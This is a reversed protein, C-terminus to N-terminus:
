SAQAIGQLCFSYPVAATNGGPVYLFVQSIQTGEPPNVGGQTWCSHTFATWPVTETGGYGSLNACWRGDGSTEGAPTQVQLRIATGGPNSYQATVGSGGLGVTQVQPVGGDPQAQVQNVNVGLMAVGGYDSAAGVSGQVCLEAAGAAVGSFDAPTITTTGAGSAQSTIAVPFAYGAWTGAVVYGQEQIQFDPVPTDTGEWFYGVPDKEAVVCQRAHPRYTYEASGPPSASCAESDFFEVEPSPVHVGAWVTGMGGQGVLHELRYGQALVQGAALEVM